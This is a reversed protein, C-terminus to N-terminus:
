RARGVTSASESVTFVLLRTIGMGQMTRFLLWFIVATTFPFKVNARLLVRLQRPRCDQDNVGM